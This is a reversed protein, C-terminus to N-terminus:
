QSFGEYFELFQQENEVNVLHGIEINELLELNKKKLKFIFKNDL